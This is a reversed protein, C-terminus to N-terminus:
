ANPSAACPVAVDDAGVPARRVRLTAGAVEAVRLDRLQAQRLNAPAGRAQLHASVGGRVSLCLQVDRAMSVSRAAPGDLLPGGCAEHHGDQCMVVAWQRMCRREPGAGCTINGYTPTHTMKNVACNTYADDSVSCDGHQHM